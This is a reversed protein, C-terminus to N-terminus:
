HWIWYVMIGSGVLEYIFHKYNDFKSEDGKNASLWCIMLIYWITGVMYAFFYYFLVTFIGEDALTEGGLLKRISYTLVIAVGSSIISSVIDIGEDDMDRNKISSVAFAIGIGIEIIIAITLIGDVTNQVAPGASFGVAIAIIMLLAIAGSGLFIIM